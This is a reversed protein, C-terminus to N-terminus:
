LYKISMDTTQDADNGCPPLVLPAADKVGTGAVTIESRQNLLGHAEELPEGIGYNMSNSWSM